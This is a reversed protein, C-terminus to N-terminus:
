QGQLDRVPPGFFIREDIKKLIKKKSFVKPKKARKCDFVSFKSNVALKANKRLIEFSKEFGSFELYLRRSPLFRIRMHLMQEGLNVKLTTKVGKCDFNSVELTSM